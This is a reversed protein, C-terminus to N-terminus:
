KYALAILRNSKNNYQSGDYDDYISIKKFGCDSLLEKLESISYLRYSSILEFSKDGKKFISTGNLRKGDLSFSSKSIMIMGEREKKTESVFNRQIMDKNILDMLLKGQEKLSKYVNMIVKQNDEDNFFGFSTAMNIVVDFYAPRIFERMDAQIFEVNLKEAEAKQMAKKVFYEVMDIGTVEYERRALELSHRGPGCCLDLIKESKQLKLLSIIQNIQLTASDWTSKGFMWEDITEWYKDDTIHLKM